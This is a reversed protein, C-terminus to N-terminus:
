KYLRKRTKRNALAFDPRDLALNPNYYPDGKEVIEPWCEAFRAVERQFRAVKAPSDEVGRSKMEYHYFEAYPNYVVLKGLARVKMCFDVDNFAVEFETTLGHVQQFVSKKVMMCAATVASYDQTCVIRNEYGGEGRPTNVFAHGAISGFGIVVGAHQITDDPFFLRAGVIGVDDRMCYGLLEALSDPAILETDNNLLLFYDGKAYEAGLNNIKSYNFSGEYHVVRINKNTQELKEYFAFTAPETSNNEVIIFEYNRYASREEISRICKDLDEIHDKNPIIISILPQEKWHYKTRITGAAEGPLATAVGPGYRGAEVYYSHGM